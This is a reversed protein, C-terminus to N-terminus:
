ALQGVPLCDGVQDVPVTASDIADIRFQALRYKMRIRGSIIAGKEFAVAMVHDVGNAFAVAMADHVAMLHRIDRYCQVAIMGAAFGVM